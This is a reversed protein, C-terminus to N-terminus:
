NTGAVTRERRCLVARVGLPSERAAAHQYEAATDQSLSSLKWRSFLASQEEM